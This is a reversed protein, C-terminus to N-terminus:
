ATPMNRWRRRRALVALGAVVVLAGSAPEPVTSLTYGQITVDGGGPVSVERFYQTTDDAVFTGITYPSTGQTYPESNSGSGDTTDQFEVTRAQNGASRDDSTLLLLAYQQGPTLGALRFEFGPQNFGWAQSDLVAEFAAGVTTGTADFLGGNVETGGGSSFVTDNDGGAPPSGGARDGLVFTISRNPTVVTGAGGGYSVAQVITPYGQNLPADLDAEDTITVPTQWTITAAIVQQVCLVAVGASLVTGRLVAAFLRSRRM